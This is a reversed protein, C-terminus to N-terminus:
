KGDKNSREIFKDALEFALNILVNNVDNTTPNKGEKIFSNNIVNLINGNSMYQCLYDHALKDRISIGNCTSMQGAIRPYYSNDPSM